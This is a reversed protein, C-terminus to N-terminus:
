RIIGILNKTFKIVSCGADYVVLKLNKRSNLRYQVSRPNMNKVQEAAEEATEAYVRFVLTAPLTAEVKVDFYSKTKTKQVKDKDKM